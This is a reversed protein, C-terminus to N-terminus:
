SLSAAELDGATAQLLVQALIEPVEFVARNQMRQVNARYRPLDAVLEAVAAGVDCSLELQIATIEAADPLAHHDESDTLDIPLGIEEGAAAAIAADADARLREVAEGSFQAAAGTKSM